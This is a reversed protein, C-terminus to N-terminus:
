WLTKKTVFRKYDILERYLFLIVQFHLFYHNLYNVFYKSKKTPKKQYKKKKYICFRNKQLFISRNYKCLLYVINLWLTFGGTSNCSIVGNQVYM